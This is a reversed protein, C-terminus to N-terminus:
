HLSEEFFDSEKKQRKKNTLKVIDFLSVRKVVFESRKREREFLLLLGGASSRAGAARVALGNVCSQPSPILIALWDAIGTTEIVLEM